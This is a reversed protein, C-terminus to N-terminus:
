PAATAAPPSTAQCYTDEGTRMLTSLPGRLSAGSSSRERQSCLIAQLASSLAAPVTTSIYCPAQHTRGLRSWSMSIVTHLLRDTPDPCTPTLILCASYTYIPPAAHSTRRSSSLACGISCCSVWPSPPSLPPFPSVIPAGPPQPPYPPAKPLMPCLPAPSPPSPPAPPPSPSRPTFCIKFGDRVGYLSSDWSLASAEVGDPGGDTGSYATGGTSPDVTLKDYRRDAGFLHVHLLMPQPFTVLCSHYLTYEDSNSQGFNPWLGDTTSTAACAGAAAFNITCMCNTTLDLVCPGTASISLARGVHVSPLQRGRDGDAAPSASGAAEKM